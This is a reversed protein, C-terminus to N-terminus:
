DSVTGSHKETRGARGSNDGGWVQGRVSGAAHTQDAHGLRLQSKGPDAKEVIRRKLRLRLYGGIRPDIRAGDNALSRADVGSGNDAGTRFDPRAAVDGAVGDDAVADHKAVAACDPRVAGYAVGNDACPHLDRGADADASLTEAEHGRRIPSQANRLKAADNDLVIDLNARVAGDVAARGAIGHDSGASNEIIEHVNRVIDPKPSMANNAALHADRAASDDPVADHDAALDADAVM